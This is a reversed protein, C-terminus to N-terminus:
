HAGAMLIATQGADVVFPTAPSHQLSVGAFPSPTSDIDRATAPLAFTKSV